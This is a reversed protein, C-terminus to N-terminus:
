ALGTTIVAQGYASLQTVTYTAKIYKLLLRCFDNWTRSSKRVTITHRHLDTLVRGVTGAKKSLHLIWCVLWIIDTGAHKLTRCSIRSGLLYVIGFYIVSLLNTRCIAADTRYLLLLFKNIKKCCNHMNFDTTVWDTKPCHHLVGWTLVM